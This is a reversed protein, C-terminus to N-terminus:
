AWSVDIANIVVSDTAVGVNAEVTCATNATLANTGQTLAFRGGAGLHRSAKLYLMQAANDKFFITAEAEFVGVETATFTATVNATGLRLVISKTGATGALSGFVKFVLRKREHAINIADRWAYAALTATYVTTLSTTQVTQDPFVTDMIKLNTNYSQALDTFLRNDDTMQSGQALSFPIDNEDAGTGFVTASSVYFHCSGIGRLAIKNRLFSSGDVNARSNVNANIGFDNDEFRCWDAHGTCTEQVFMGSVNNLFYPGKLLDGSSQTGISHRSGMLGRYGAGNGTRSAEAVNNATNGLYGNRTFIGGKIDMASSQCTVGWYNDTFHCNILYTETGTASAKVGASSTTGNYGEFRINSIVFGTKSDALDIAVAGINYGESFLATPVNPHNVIPGRITPPAVADLGALDKVRDTYTGAALQIAWFGQLVPGYNSLYGTAKKVTRLPRASTLGDNSDTAGSTAVYLTNAQVGRPELYFTDAGRKIAGPGTHRVTHLNVITDTSLYNGAPWYLSRGQAIAATIANNIATQDSTTGDGVAGFDKVSLPTRNDDSYPLTAWATTGDGLKFRGVTSDWGPEGDALVPNAASWQAMTGRRVKIITM